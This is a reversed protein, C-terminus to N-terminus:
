LRCSVLAHAHLRARVAYRSLSRIAWSARARVTAKCFLDAGALWRTHSLSDTHPTAYFCDPAASYSYLLEVLQRELLRLM